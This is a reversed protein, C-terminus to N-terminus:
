LMPVLLLTMVICLMLLVVIQVTIWEFRMFIPIRGDQKLTATNPM